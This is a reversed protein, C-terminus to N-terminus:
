FFQVLSKCSQKIGQSKVSEYQQHVSNINKHAKCRITSEINQSQYSDLKQSTVYYTRDNLEYQKHRIVTDKKRGSIELRAEWGLVM